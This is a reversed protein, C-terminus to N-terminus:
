ILRNHRLIFTSMNQKDAAVLTALIAPSAQLMTCCNPPAIHSDYTWKFLTFTDKSPLKIPIASILVANKDCLEVTDDNFSWLHM